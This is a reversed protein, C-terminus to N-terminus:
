SARAQLIYDAAESLSPATFVQGAQIDTEGSILIGRGGTNNALGVDSAKDGIVWSDALALGTAQACELAMGPAPKRCECVEDPAHPCLAIHAFTIGHPKLMEVLTDNISDATARDFYRRGIGSQNTVICLVAGADRLKVLGDVAGPLLELGAPDALYHKDVNITGDRDLMVLFHESM